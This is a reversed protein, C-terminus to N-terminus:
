NNKFVKKNAEAAERVKREAEPILEVKENINQTKPWFKGAWELSSASNDQVYGEVWERINDDNQDSYKAKDLWNQRGRGEAARADNRYSFAEWSGVYHNIRLLTNEDKVFPRACVKPVPEHVTLYYPNTQFAQKATPFDEYEIRSVDVLAKAWGNKGHSHTVSRRIHHRYRLTDFRTANLSSPVKHQINSSENAGFLMRPIEICPNPYLARIDDNHLFDKVITGQQLKPYPWHAYNDSSGSPGNYLLYEDSDILLVWSQGIDKMHVLCNRLFLNQRQRHDHSWIMPQKHRRRQQLIEQWRKMSGGYIQDESWEDIKLGRKRWLDFIESPSSQSRPDVGVVLHGLPLVYSHYALWETLRHNDDMMLMCVAITENPDKIPNYPVHYEEKEPPPDGTWHAHNPNTDIKKTKTPDMKKIKEFIGKATDFTRGWIKLRSEKKAAALTAHLSNFKNGAKKEAAAIGRLSPLDVTEDNDDNTSVSQETLVVLNVFLSMCLIALYFYCFLKERRPIKKSTTAENHNNNNNRQQQIRVM